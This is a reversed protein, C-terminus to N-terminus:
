RVILADLAAPDPQVGERTWRRAGEIVAGLAEIRGWAQEPNSRISRVLASIGVAVIGEFRGAVQADLWDAWGVLRSREADDLASGTAPVSAPPATYGCEGCRGVQDDHVRPPFCGCQWAM